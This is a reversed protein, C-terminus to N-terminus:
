ERAKLWHNLQVKNQSKKDREKEGTFGIYQRHENKKTQHSFQDWSAHLFDADTM